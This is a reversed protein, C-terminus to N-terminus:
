IFTTAKPIVNVFEQLAFNSIANKRNVLAIKVQRSAEIYEAITEESNIMRRAVCSRQRRGIARNFDNNIWSPNNMTARRRQIHIRSADNVRNKLIKFELEANNRVMPQEFTQYDLETPM